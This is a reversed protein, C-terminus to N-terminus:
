VGSLAPNRGRLRVKKLFKPLLATILLGTPVLPSLEWRLEDPFFLQVLMSITLSFLTQWLKGPFYLSTEVGQIVSLTQMGVCLGGFALFGSCLVFRLGTNSILSLALCGNSLELVGSLIIEGIEPLLWGFWRNVFGLIVRFLVVWGCVGAMGSLAERMAEPLGPAHGREPSISAESKGPLMRAVILASLIHIGWLAWAMWLSDFLAAAMGFLFAPGANNCFALMKGGDRPSLRGQRCAAGICQAGVPYGGLAGVAWIAEAGEPIGMWKGLPRLLPLHEGLLAGSLLRSLVFFPFLSPIVTRLCLEMGERAALLATKSDLILVLMGLAGALASRIRLKKM